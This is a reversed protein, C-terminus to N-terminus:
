ASAMLDRRWGSAEFFVFVDNGFRSGSSSSSGSATARGGVGGEDISLFTMLLFIFICSLSGLGRFSILRPLLFIRTRCTSVLTRGGLDDAALLAILSFQSIPWRPGSPPAPTGRRFIPIPNMRFYIYVSADTWTANRCCLPWQSHPM